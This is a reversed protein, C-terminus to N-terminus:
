GKWLPYAYIGPYIPNYYWGHVWDREYHRGLPQDVIVSPVDEYYIRTLERCIDERKKPDITTILEEVLKDVRENKYKQWAAFTGSSHMYPFVFNYPDPYDALWGIIFVPLEGRVMAKLYEPWEVARVEIKFKPNISEVKDKIMEALTKRQVNGTNYLITLKFGKEWLQGNWAKKFYEEAKKLDFTYMPMDKFYGPLGQPIPGPTRIAEGFWAESIYRDYDISHVFALRVNKDQFFNPPIGEGDLKGSGIYPSTPSINFNFFLADNAVTPLDKIIRIGPEGEVEKMNQRPVYAIDVDGRLFMLKRTSWEDVKMIIFESFNAPGRWYQDFRKLVVQKGHEWRDLMFPGSGCDAEQLPPNEPNNYKTWNKETGDWDGHAIACQKDVISSWTQSLIQFLTTIPYPKKLHLVVSDGQVEVAKDIDEFSVIINGKEDRTSEVGLLPDLLMWSPGGDRDMVLVRELSYEVDEPTLERGSHFKIGKRIPFIITTGNDKILGNEFSPVQTAIMPVFKDVSERDFFILTEYMNFIVEGSATDYAWAPDLTEPEGITAVILKDPNKIAPTVTTTNTPTPTPTTPTTVTPTPTPTMTPPLTVYYLAAAILIVIIVGLIALLTRRSM